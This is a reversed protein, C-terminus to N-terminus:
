EIKLSKQTSRPYTRPTNKPVLVLEFVYKFKANNEFCNKLSKPDFKTPNQTGFHHPLPPASVDKEAKAEKPKGKAERPRRKAEGQGRKAEGQCRKPSWQRGKPRGTAERPRWKAEMKSGKHRGM